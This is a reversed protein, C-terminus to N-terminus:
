SKKGKTSGKKETEPKPQDDLLLADEVSANSLSHLTSPEDIQAGQVLLGLLIFLVLVGSLAILDVGLGVGDGVGDGTGMVNTFVPLSPAGQDNLGRIEVSQNGSALNDPDLAVVWEFRELAGLGGEVVEYTAEMWPGDGIRFEVSAISGSQGWALGRIEHLGSSENISSNNIHVQSTVDITGTLNAEALYMSLKVAEYADVMGWGFDRNWFPDVAPNSPEGRREATLKLIEKMEATTLDPNAEIMMALIGSVSPTAYSTGSGRGTYGNDEASGGLLNVCGSSTVCGEAQVINSGPASVEPKLENLPNGDGNDRREGRSSYGAVTDDSRDITNQDDTAGVTISLSSSGMGSLGDNDPGDNGAAVSVVVGLEMAENLIRSHMDEGDSGGGEHSTIGWSLSIIDIGYNAEDAGQWATDRNDIIWQLGNMASEYFEQALLYNEFPGAGADTGIRVDVLDADPASGYFDTQAGSADIGTAAAMGMCATGHQHGDDPDYTGDTERVGGATCTPDTHLYCVADYGAIFKQNLGPHENDVGTDVMAINVDKGTFGLDWAGVPYFSSNRAKVAPTQIDGYLVINGYREVMVVDDLSALQFALSADVQGLLVADVSEIVDVVTLNMGALAALHADDVEVGYSLGIGTTGTYTELSDHIANRNQDLATREWWPTNDNLWAAEAQEPVELSYGAPMWQVGDRDVAEWATPESKVVLSGTVPGMLLALVLVALMRRM